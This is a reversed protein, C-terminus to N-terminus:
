ITSEPERAANRQGRQAYDIGVALLFVLGQIVNQLYKSTGVIGLGNTLVGIILIGIFVNIVKGEGGRMSIGGVACVTLTDLQFSLGASPQASNIRSVTIIGAIAAMVGCLLYTVRRIRDVHVGAVRAANENSGVACIYKGWYTKGLVFASCGLVAALILVQTPIISIRGQGLFLLRTDIDYIPNGGSILYALGSFVSTTALTVLLSPIRTVTVAIGNLYGMAAGSLLAILICLWLPLHLASMCVALIMGALSMQAGVSLDICGTLMVYMLGVSAIGLLSVQRLITMLNSVTFFKDSAVSFAVILVALIVWGAFARIRRGKM